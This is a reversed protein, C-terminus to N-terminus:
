PQFSVLKKTYEDYTGDHIYHCLVVGVGKQFWVDQLGGSGFHDSFIHVSGAYTIPLMAAVAQRAPEVRWPVDNNGWRSGRQMPFCFDPSLAGNRLYRRYEPRLQQKLSDWGGDMVYVCNGAVLYPERDRADLASQPSTLASALKSAERLVVLGEPITVQGTITERGTVGTDVALM